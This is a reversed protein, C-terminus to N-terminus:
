EGHQTPTTGFLTCVFAVCGVVLAAIGYFCAIAGLVGFIPRFYELISVMGWAILMFSGGVAATCIVGAAFNELAKSM